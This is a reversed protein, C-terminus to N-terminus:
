GPAGPLRNVLAAWAPDTAANAPLRFSESELRSLDEPTAPRWVDIFTSDYEATRISMSGGLSGLVRYRTWPDGVDTVEILAGSERNIFVPGM